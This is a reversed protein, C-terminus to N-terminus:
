VQQAIEDDIADDEHLEIEAGLSRFDRIINEYGREIHEIGTIYTTGEASLGALVLCIGARVDSAHVWAGTLIRNGPVIVSGERFIIDAGMRNLQICHNFREPFVTDIITSHSESNVLMATIPQQFDTAFGPYMTAKINVGKLKEGAYAKIRDDEAEIHLGTEELKATCSVLHAPIVGRVEVCGGTVGASMLFAGATLRDPIVTHTCGNLSTVGEITITSTGAGKIKAGMENLFIAVDVVEPDRAANHLITKGRALVASLMINITAGSTIGDFYIESGTLVDAEVTYFDNYFTVKAGLAEFGKIHQDIPRSGFNDGGPYGITVKKMKTLLSGVFYYSARLSAAKKPSIESNYIRSPDIYLSSGQFSVNVGLDKCIDLMAMIDSIMPVKELIVPSDSLCCAALLGLSSNKSGLINVSGNLPNSKKVEFYRMM